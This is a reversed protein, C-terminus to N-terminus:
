FNNQSLILDELVREKRNQILDSKLSHAIYILFLHFLSLLEM